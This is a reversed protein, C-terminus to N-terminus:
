NCMLFSIEGVFLLVNQLIGAHTKMRVLQIKFFSKETIPMVYQVTIM